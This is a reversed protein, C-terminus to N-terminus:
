AYLSIVKFSFLGDFPEWSDTKVHNNNERLWNWEDALKTVTKHKSGTFYKIVMPGFLSEELGSQWGFKLLQLNRCEGGATVHFNFRPWKYKGHIEANLHLVWHELIPYWVSYRM